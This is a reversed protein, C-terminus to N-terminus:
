RYRQLESSDTPQSFLKKMTSSMPMRLNAGLPPIPTNFWRQYIRAMEGSSMLQAISADVVQKMRQDGLALMLGYPEVSLAERSIVFDSPNRSSAVGHRLLADDMAYAVARGSAVMNFAEADDKVTFIKTRLQHEENLRMLAQMSTTGATSVASQGRLDLLEHIPRAKRSLLRGETVFISLSFAAMTQREATNTTVGCEMDITRNVMMPFRTTATVPVWQVRLKKQKLAAQISKIIHECVDVSYGIPHLNADLFSFPVSNERYGVVISNTDRIRKLTTSEEVARGTGPSFVLFGLILTLIGVHRSTQMISPAKLTLHQNCFLDTM